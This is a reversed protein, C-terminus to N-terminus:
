DVNGGAKLEPVTDVSNSSALKTLLRPLRRRATTRHGAGGV